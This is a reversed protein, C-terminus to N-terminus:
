EGDCVVFAPRVVTETVKGTFTQPEPLVVPQYAARQEYFAKIEQMRELLEPLGDAPIENLLALCKDRLESDM